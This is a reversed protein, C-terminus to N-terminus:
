DIAETIDNYFIINNKLDVSKLICLLSYELGVITFTINECLLTDAAEVIHVASTYDLHSILSADFIVRKVQDSGKTSKYIEHQVYESSSYFVGQQFKIIVYDKVDIEDYSIVPLSKPWTAPFLIFLLSCVVGGIIGYPIEWFCLLFTIVLPILDLKYTRWINKVSMIDVMYIVSSIIVAALAAKPIYYFFPTLFALSLIVLIGTVIGGAPTQVNSQYNIATRSFSGTISYSSVFSSMVNAAGIAIMEQNSVLIYGGKAAFSKGIAISELLGMLPVVALGAGINQFLEKTTVTKNVTKEYLAPAKFPPLGEKVEGTLTVCNPIPCTAAINQTSIAYAILAACIVVIANRGTSIFWIFKKAWRQNRTDINPVPPATFKLYRLLLLVVTCSMGMVLDWINTKGINGFTEIVEPIFQNSKTKIGLLHKVQGFAITIAAASTFGSIVPISIYRMIFGLKLLGMFLQILGAFLTLMVAQVPDCNGYTHVLLSMIATPGLTVDKSTGFFCYIFGGMFASYLGYQIPLGAIQAYALAQPIVTLGVTLGAIVDSLLYNLQYKPLWTIIPFYSKSIKTCNINSSCSRLKTKFKSSFTESSGGNIEKYKNVAPLLPQEESFRAEQM